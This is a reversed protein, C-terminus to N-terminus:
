HDHLCSEANGATISAPLIGGPPTQEGLRRYITSRSVGLKRAAAAVNGDCSSLTM